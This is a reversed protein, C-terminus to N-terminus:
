DDVMTEGSPRGHIPEYRRLDAYHLAVGPSPETEDLM